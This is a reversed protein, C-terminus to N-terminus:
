DIKGFQQVVKDFIKLAAQPQRAILLGLSSVVVLAAIPRETIIKKTVEIPLDLMALAMAVPDMEDHVPQPEPKKSRSQTGIWLSIAAIALLAVGTVALAAPWPMWEALWWAAAATLAFLGAIALLTAVSAVIAVDKARDFFKDFM